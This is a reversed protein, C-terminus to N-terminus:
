EETMAEIPTILIKNGYLVNVNWLSGYPTKMQEIVNEPITIRNNSGTNLYSLSVTSNQAKTSITQFGM